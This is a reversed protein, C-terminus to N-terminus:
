RRKRLLLYLVTVGAAVMAANSSLWSSADASDGLAAIRGRPLEGSGVKKAGMPLRWSAQSTTAGLRNRAWTVPPAGAHISVPGPGEYYDYSRTAINFVSYIM